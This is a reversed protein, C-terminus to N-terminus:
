RDRLANHIAPRPAVASDLNARKGNVGDLEQERLPITWGSKDQRRFVGTLMAYPAMLAYVSLSLVVFLKDAIAAGARRWKRWAEWTQAKRLEKRAAKEDGTLEM